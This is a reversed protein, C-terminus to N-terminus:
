EAKMETLRVDKGAHMINIDMVMTATNTKFEM